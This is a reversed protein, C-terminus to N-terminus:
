DSGPTTTLVQELVEGDQLSLHLRHLNLTDLRCYRLLQRRVELAASGKVQGGALGEFARQAALGDAIEEESYGSVGGLVAPAVAKMSYSGEFASAVVSGAVIPYLDALRDRASALLNAAEPDTDAALRVLSDLCGKEFSANYVLIPGHPFRALADALQRTLGPRPDGTAPALYEFHELDDGGSWLHLSYQFPIKQFPRAGDFRPIAPSITEFDLYAAPPGLRALQDALDPAIYPRGTAYADRFRLHRDRTRDPLRATNIGDLELVSEVGAERLWRLHHYNLGSLHTYIWHRPKRAFCRATFDCEFPSNCRSGPEASPQTGRRLQLFREVEARVEPAVERCFDTVDRRRFLAALDLEGRREYDADLHYVWARRVPIGARRLVEGQFAVDYTIHPQASGARSTPDYRTATKVEILDWGHDRRQLVDVVALLRDHAIAAEFIAPCSPDALLRRTRAIDSGSVARDAGGLRGGPFLGRAAAEAGEWFVPEIGQDPPDYVRYWLQLPCQRGAIYRSKSLRLPREPDGPAM